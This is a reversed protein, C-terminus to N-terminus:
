AVMAAPDLQPLLAAIRDDISRSHPSTMAAIQEALDLVTTRALGGPQGILVHDFLFPVYRAIQERRAEWGDRAIASELLADLAGGDYEYCVGKGSLQSRSLLVVPTDTLLAEHQVTTAGLVAAADSAALMTRIPEGESVSLRPHQPMVTTKRNLPHDQVLIHTDEGTAELLANIAATADAFWPSSYRSGHLSRPAWSAAASLFLTVLRKGAPVGNRARLQDPSTEAHKAKYKGAGRGAYYDRIQALADSNITASRAHQRLAFDLNLDGMAGIGLHDIMMTEPYVGREIGYSPITYVSCLSQLLRGAPVTPNWIFVSDPELTELVRRYFADCVALGRATASHPSRIGQWMADSELYGRPYRNVAAADPPVALESYGALLYPVQLYRFRDHAPKFTTLVILTVGRQELQRDLAELMADVFPDNPLYCSLLCISGNRMSAPQSAREAPVVIPAAPAPSLAAPPADAPKAAVAASAAASKDQQEGWEELPRFVVACAYKTGAKSTSLGSVQVFMFGSRDRCQLLSKGHRTINELTVRDSVDYGKHDDFRSMLRELSVLSISEIQIMSWRQGFMVGIDTKLDDVAILALCYGDHTTQVNIQQTSCGGNRSFMVPLTADSGNFDGAKLDFRFRSQTFYTLPLQIGEARMELALTPRETSNLYILGRRRLGRAAGEVDFIDVKADVGLNIDTRFGEFVSLDAKSPLYLMRGLAAVATYHRATPDEWLQSYPGSLAADVFSLAAQQVAVRTADQAPNRVTTQRIPHGDRNYDIVSDVGAKSLQELLSVPKLLTDLARSDTNSRDILGHMDKITDHCDRLLMYLGEVEVGLEQEFIPQIMSQVTGSYGLDVLLLTEGPEARTTARVHKMMRARYAKSATHIQQLTKPSMVRKCFVQLADDRKDLGRIVAGAQKEDLLLQQAIVDFRRQPGLFSLYRDIALDSTFSSAYAAFRPLESEVHPIDALRPDAAILKEYVRHPFWGDRLMFVLRPRKGAAKLALARDAVYHALALMIPGLSMHGILTRADCDHLNEAWLAHCLQYAPATARTEPLLVTGAAVMMRNLESVDSRFARLHCGRVGARKASRYDAEFNDGIHLIENPQVGLKKIVNEFIGETKRRRYDCSCFIEDILGTIDDIGLVSCILASLQDHNFYTDSVVVVRMGRAKAQQILARLPQFAFCVSKEVELEEDMLIEIDEDPAGPLARRYIEELTVERSNTYIYHEARSRTEATGRASPTLGLARFRPRDSLLLFADSPAAVRRWVLTDFCDISLVSCDKAESDLLTALGPVDVTKDAM